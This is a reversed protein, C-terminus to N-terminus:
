VLLRWCDILGRISKKDDLLLRWQFINLHNECILITSSYSAGKNQEKLISVLIILCPCAHPFGLLAVQGYWFGVLFFPISYALICSYVESKLKDNDKVISDYNALLSDYTSKLLDYDRELQKTKWRARRNQFWVAVQRPQLGLKKALQTKREPELKNEAEFSNELLHM